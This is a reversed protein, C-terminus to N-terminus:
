VIQRPPNVSYDLVHFKHGQAPEFKLGTIRDKELAEKLRASIILEPRYQLKFLDKNAINLDIYLELLAVRNGKGTNIWEEELIEQAARYEELSNVEIDKKWDTLGIYFRSKKFDIFHDYRETFCLFKYPYTKKRHNVEADVSIFPMPEFSRLLDYLRESILAADTGVQVFSIWDTMKAHYKMEFGTAKKMPIQTRSNYLGWAEYRYQFHFGNFMKELQPYKGVMKLDASEKLFYFDM